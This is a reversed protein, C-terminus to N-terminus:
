QVYRSLSVGCIRPDDTSTPALVESVLATETATALPVSALEIGTTLSSVM